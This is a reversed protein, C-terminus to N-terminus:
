LAPKSRSMLPRVPFVPGALRHPLLLTLFLGVSTAPLLGFPFDWILHSAGTLSPFRETKATSRGRPRM